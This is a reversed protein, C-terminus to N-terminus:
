NRHSEDFASPDAFTSLARTVASLNEHLEEGSRQLRTRQKKMQSWGLLFLTLALLVTISAVCLLGAAASIGAVDALLLGLGVIVTPVAAVFLCFATTWLGGIRLATTRVMQMDDAFLRVQLEAIRAMDRAIASLHEAFARAASDDPPTDNM